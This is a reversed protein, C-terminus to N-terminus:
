LTPTKELEQGTLDKYANSVDTQAVDIKLTQTLFECLFTFDTAIKQEEENLDIGAGIKELIEDKHEMFVPIANPNVGAEELKM